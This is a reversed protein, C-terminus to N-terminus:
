CWGALLAQVQGVGPSEQREGGIALEQDSAVHLWSSQHNTFGGGAFFQQAQVDLVAARDGERRIVLLERQRGAPSDTENVGGATFGDTLEFHSVHLSVVITKCGKQGERAVVSDEDGVIAIM